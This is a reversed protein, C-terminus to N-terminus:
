RLAIALLLKTKWPARRIRCSRKMIIKNGIHPAHIAVKEAYLEGFEQWACAPVGIVGSKLKDLLISQLNGYVAAIAHLGGTDVVSSCQSAEETM